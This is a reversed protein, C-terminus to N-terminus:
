FIRSISFSSLLTLTFPAFELELTPMPPPPLLAMNPSLPGAFILCIILFSVSCIKSNIWSYTFSIAMFETLIMLSSSLVDECFISASSQVALFKSNMLGFSNSLKMLKLWSIWSAWWFVKLLFEKKLLSWWDDTMFDMRLSTSSVYSLDAESPTLLCSGWYKCSKSIARILGNLRLFATSRSSCWMMTLMIKFVSLVSSELSWACIQKELISVWLFKIPSIISFGYKAWQIDVHISLKGASTVKYVLAKLIRWFANSLRATVSTIKLFLWESALLKILIVLFVLSNVFTRKSFKCTFIGLKAYKKGMILGKFLKCSM